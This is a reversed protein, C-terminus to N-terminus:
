RKFLDQDQSNFVMVTLSGERWAVTPLSSTIM